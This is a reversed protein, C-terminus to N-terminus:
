KRGVNDSLGVDLMWGKQQIINWYGKQVSEKKAIFANDGCFVHFGKGRVVNFWLKYDTFIKSGKPKLNNDM